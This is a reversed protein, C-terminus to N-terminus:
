KCKYSEVMHALRKAAMAARSYYEEDSLDAYYNVGDVKAKRSIELMMTGNFGSDSIYKTAYSYDINGDFPIMHDDTNDGCRNDHVHLACLRDGFHEMFMVGHTFGNEHGIDYCFGANPHRDMFFSINELYRQNEYAIKVGLRNAYRMLRDYRRIGQKTIEPMPCGSSLHVIAVPINYRACKKVADKLRKLMRNAAFPDSGWMDNIKDYPAHLTECIIGNECMLKMAGDFDEWESSIFTHTVGNKKLFEIQKILPLGRFVVIGINM